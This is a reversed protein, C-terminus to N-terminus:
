SITVVVNVSSQLYGPVTSFSYDPQVPTVHFTNGYYDVSSVTGEASGCVVPDGVSMQQIYGVHTAGTVTVIADQGRLAQSYKTNAVTVTAM